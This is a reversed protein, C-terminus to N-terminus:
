RFEPGVSLVYHFTSVFAIQHSLPTCCSTSFDYALVFGAFNNSVDSAFTVTVTQMQFNFVNDINYFNGNNDHYQWIATDVNTAGECVKYLQV